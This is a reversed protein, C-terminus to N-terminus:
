NIADGIFDIGHILRDGLNGWFGRSADLLERSHSASAKAEYTAVIKNAEIQALEQEHAQKAELEEKRRQYAEDEAAKAAIAKHHAEIKGRYNNLLVEAKAYEPTDTPIMQMHAVVEPNIEEVDSREIAAQMAALEEGAHTRKMLELVEPQKKTAYQFAEKAQEPISHLLALALDFNKRKAADEVQNKVTQLNKAYYDLIRVEATQLMQQLATTNTIGDAMNSAAEEFSRGASTLEQEHMAYVEGSVLNM